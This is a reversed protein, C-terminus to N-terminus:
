ENEGPPYEPTTEAKAKAEAEAAAEAEQRAIEAAEEAEKEETEIRRLCKTGTRSDLKHLTQHKECWFMGEPTVEPKENPIRAAKKQPVILRAEATEDQGSAEKAIGANCWSKAVAENPIDVVMDPAFGGYISAISTLIKIRM